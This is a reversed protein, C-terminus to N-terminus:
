ICLNIMEYGTNVVRFDSPATITFLLSTLPKFNLFYEYSPRFGHFDLPLFSTHTINHKHSAGCFFLHVVSM